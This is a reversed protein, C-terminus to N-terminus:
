SNEPEDTHESVKFYVWILNAILLMATMAFVWRIGFGAAIFGGSLPGLSNGMFTASATM